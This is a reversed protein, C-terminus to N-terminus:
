NREVVFSTHGLFMNQDDDVVSHDDSSDDGAVGDGDAGVVEEVLDIDVVEEQVAFLAVVLFQKDGSM